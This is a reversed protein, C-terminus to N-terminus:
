VLEGDITGDYRGEDGVGYRTAIVADFGLREALPDVLAHPTTTALVVPRGAAQHEALMAHAYPQVAAVMADAATVAAPQVEAQPWGKAFRAAQRALEISPRTEGILDFVKYLVNEGLQFRSEVI